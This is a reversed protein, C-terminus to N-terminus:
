RRNTMLKQWHSPLWVLLANMPTRIEHSVHSLFRSKAVSASLANNLSDSLIRKQEQAETEDSVVVIYGAEGSAELIPYFRIKFQRNIGECQFDKERIQFAEELNIQDSLSATIDEMLRVAFDGKSRLLDNSDEM